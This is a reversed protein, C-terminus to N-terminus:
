HSNELNQRINQTVKKGKELASVLPELGLALRVNDYEASQLNEKLIAMDAYQHLDLETVPLDEGNQGPEFEGTERSEFIFLMRPMDEESPVQIFPIHSSLGDGAEEYMIEPVWRSPQDQKSMYIEQQIDIKFM